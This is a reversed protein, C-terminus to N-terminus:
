NTNIYSLVGSTMQASFFVQSIKNVKYFTLICKFAFFFIEYDVELTEHTTTVAQVGVSKM